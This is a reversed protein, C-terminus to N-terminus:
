KKSLSMLIKDFSELWSDWNLEKEYKARAVKSYAELRDNEIIEMIAAAFDEGTSGLPLCRGTVGDEVYSEVGGTKHTVSPLGYEAAEAFVIGACEAKTPLLFLDSEQYYSIMREYEEPINKNLRGLIHIYSEYEQGTPQKVGIITLDFSYKKQMKNLARVCDIAIDIGKREWDVGVLLLRITNNNSDCEQYGQYGQYKDILNAGFPLVHIKQPDTQYFKMAGAKAWESAFIVADARKLAAKECNDLYHETRPDLDSWYYGVMLRFVADSLYILKKDDPVGFSILESQAPAFYIDCDSNRLERHLRYSNYIRLFRGNKQKGMSIIFSLGKIVKEIINHPIVIPVLEHNKKITTALNYFTGSWSKEDDIASNLIYGIKM